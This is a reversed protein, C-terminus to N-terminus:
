ADDSTWVVETGKDYNVRTPPLDNKSRFDKFHLLLIIGMLILVLASLIHRIFILVYYGKMEIQVISSLSDAYDYDLKVRYMCEYRKVTNKPKTVTFTVSSSKIAKIEDEIIESNDLLRFFFQNYEHNEPATCNIRLMASNSPDEEWTVSPAPLALVSIKMPNSRVSKMGNARNKYMCSYYGVNDQRAHDIKYSFHNGDNSGNRIIVDNKFLSFDVNNYYTSCVITVTAGPQVARRPSIIIAPRPFMDQVFINLPSSLDSCAGHDCYKCFYDGDQEIQVNTLRFENINHEITENKGNAKEHVLYFKKGSGNACNLM